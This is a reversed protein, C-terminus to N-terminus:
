HRERQRVGIHRRALRCFLAVLGVQIGACRTVVTPARARWLSQWVYFLESVKTIVPLDTQRKPRTIVAVGDVSAPLSGSEGYAIVAVRYGARALLTALLLVQTEAGGSTASGSLRAAVGPLYFVVDHRWRRAGSRNM